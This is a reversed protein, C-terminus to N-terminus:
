PASAGVESGNADSALTPGPFDSHGGGGGGWCPLLEQMALLATTLKGDVWLKAGVM